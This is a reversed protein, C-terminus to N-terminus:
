SREMLAMYEALRFSLDLGADTSLLFSKGDVELAFVDDGLRHFRVSDASTLVPTEQISRLVEASFNM